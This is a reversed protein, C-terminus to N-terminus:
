GDTREEEDGTAGIVFGDRELALRIPRHPDVVARHSGPTMYDAFVIGAKAGMEYRLQFSPVSQSPVWEWSWSDFGGPYDRRLDARREFWQRATLKRLEDVLPKQYVVVLEVAIPSQLNADPAVTVEVPLTGGFMSRTRSPLGCSVLLLSLWATAM